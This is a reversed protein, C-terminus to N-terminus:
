LESRLFISLMQSQSLDKSATTSAPCRGGGTM